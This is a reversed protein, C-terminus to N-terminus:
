DEMKMIPYLVRELLLKTEADKLPKINECIVNLFNTSDTIENESYVLVRNFLKKSDLNVWDSASIIKRPIKEEREQIYLNVEISPAIISCIKDLNPEQKYYLKPIDFQLEDEMWVRVRTGGDRLFENRQAKRLIPRSEVGGSFELVITDQQAYDYRRTIVQVHKGWMFVSFFGIGYRGISQFGKALLGPHEERMLRSGWSSNGFDLFPGKLIESSMGIGNDEIEIWYGESDKGSRVTIDGWDMQDIIM